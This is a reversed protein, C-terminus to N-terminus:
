SSIPERDEAESITGLVRNMKWMNNPWFILLVTGSAETSTFMSNEPRTDTKVSNFGEKERSGYM